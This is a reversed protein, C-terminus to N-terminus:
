LAKAEKVVLGNAGHQDFLMGKAEVRKAIHNELPINPNVGPKEGALFYLKGDDGLLGLDQGAKFCAKACEAHAAGKKAGMLYCATDVVEGKVAVEKGMAMGGMGKGMPMEEGARALTFAFGAVAAAMILIRGRNM